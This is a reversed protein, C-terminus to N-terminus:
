FLCITKSGFFYYPLKSILIDHDVTDFAKSLDLFISIVDDKEDLWGRWDEVMSNLALECSLNKRFGFQSHHLMNNSELYIRIQNSILTEFLKSIPPLISIPRYNAAESKKGKGKYLPMIHACKWDDPYVGSSIILNFLYTIQPGIVEAGGILIVSDIGVEGKGSSAALSKLGAVVELVAFPSIEFDSGPYPFKLASCNSFYRTIYEFCIELALFNFITTISAFYNGFYNSVALYLNNGM